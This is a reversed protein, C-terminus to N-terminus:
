VCARAKQKKKAKSPGPPLHMSNQATSNPVAAPHNKFCFTETNRHAIQLAPTNTTEATQDEPREYQM